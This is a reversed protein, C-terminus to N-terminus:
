FPKTMKVEKQPYEWGKGHINKGQYNAQTWILGPSRVWQGGLSEFGAIRMTNGKIIGLIVAQPQTYCLFFYNKGWILEQEYHLIVM